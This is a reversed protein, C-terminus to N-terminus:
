VRGDGTLPMNSLLIKWLQLLPISLSLSAKNARAQIRLLAASIRSPSGQWVHHSGAENSTLILTRCPEHQSSNKKKREWTGRAKTKSLNLVNARNVHIYEVPLNNRAQFNRGYICIVNRLRECSTWSLIGSSDGLPSLFFFPYLSSFCICFM